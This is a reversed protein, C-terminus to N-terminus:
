SKIFLPTSCFFPAGLGGTTDLFCGGHLSQVFISTSAKRSCRCCSGQYLPWTCDAAGQQTAYSPGALLRCCLPTAHMWPLTKIVSM